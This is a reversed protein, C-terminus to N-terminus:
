VASHEAPWRTILLSKTRPYGFAMVRFRALNGYSFDSLTYGDIQKGVKLGLHEEALNAVQRPTLVDVRQLSRWGDALRVMPPSGPALLVDTAGSRVCTDLLRDWEVRAMRSWSLPNASKLNYERKRKASPFEHV